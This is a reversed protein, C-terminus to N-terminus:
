RILSDVYAILIVAIIAYGIVKEMKTGKSM